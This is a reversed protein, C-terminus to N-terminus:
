WRVGCVQLIQKVKRPAYRLLIISVFDAYSETLSFPTIRIYNTNHSMLSYASLNCILLADSWVSFLEWVSLITLSIRGGRVFLRTGLGGVKRLGERGVARREGGGRERQCSIKLM